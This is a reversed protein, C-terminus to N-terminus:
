APALSPWSVLLLALLFKKRRPEGSDTRERLRSYSARPVAVGPCLTMIHGEIKLFNWLAGIVIRRTQGRNGPDM